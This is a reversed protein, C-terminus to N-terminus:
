PYLPTKRKTVKTAPHRWDKTGEALGVFNAVTVPTDKAFLSCRIEGATTDFVVGTVNSIDPLDGGSKKQPEPEPAAAPQAAPEPASASTKSDSCGLVALLLLAILILSRRM